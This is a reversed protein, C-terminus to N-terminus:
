LYLDQFSVLLDTMGSKEVSGEELPVLLAICMPVEDEAFKSYGM